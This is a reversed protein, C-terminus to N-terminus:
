KSLNRETFTDPGIDPKFTLRDYRMETKNGPRELDYVTCCVPLTTGEIDRIDSMDCRRVLKGDEDFYEIRDAIYSGKRVKLRVKGWVVAADPKPVADIIWYAIGQENTEGAISHTYSEVVSDARVVDDNTFDSGLWSQLMMSPPVKVVREISPVYQWAERRKKLFTMGKDKKPALVRVFVEETKRTWAEMIMTRSWAPRSITMTIQAFSENGRALNDCRSVIETATLSEDAASM